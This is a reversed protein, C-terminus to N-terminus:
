IIINRIENEDIGITLFLNRAKVITEEYEKEPISDWVIGGGVPYYIKNNKILLTRILINLQLNENFGFFGFSGTYFNRKTPELEEIIEMARKKPAGTISGGPFIAKIIAEFNIGNKLKGEITSTTQYVTKYKELEILKEVKVTGYECIKGFDNRELDVIMILEARDKESRLLEEKIKRNLVSNKEAKRTGKMPKTIIRKGQKKLFLEPSNSVLFFDRFNFYASYPAPNTKQLRLFLNYPEFIGKIEFRHSFNIQYVDGEKIYDRIKEISSIYKSYSMNSTLKKIKFESIEIKLKSTKEITSKIFNKIEKFQGSNGISVLFAKKNVNDFVLISNYFCVFIDPLFLDDISKEPLKEIQWALDYSLFGIGGPSFFVNSNIKFNDFIKQFERLPNSKFKYIKGEQEIEINDKKSKFILFPSFSCITYKENKNWYVNMYFSFFERHLFYFIKEPNIYPFM